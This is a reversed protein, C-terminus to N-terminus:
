GQGGGLLKEIKSPEDITKYRLYASDIALNSFADVTLGLAEQSLYCAGSWFM